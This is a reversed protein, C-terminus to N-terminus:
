DADDDDVWKFAYLDAAHHENDRVILTVEDGNQFGAEKLKDAVHPVIFAILADDTVGFAYDATEHIRTIEVRQKWARKALPQAPVANHPKQVIPMPVVVENREREEIEKQREEWTSLSRKVGSSVAILQKLRADTPCSTFNLWNRVAQDSVGVQHALAQISGAKNLAEVVIQAPYM